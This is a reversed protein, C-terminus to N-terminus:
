CREAIEYVLRAALKATRGDQDLLPNCEAIDVLVIPLNLAKAESILCKILELGVLPELGMVSPASVGPAAGANFVDLCITLYLYDLQSLYQQLEARIADLDSLKCEHDLRWQVGQSKAFDFLAETNASENVGICYYHFSKQHQACWEAIQRFPTGSSGQRAPNRLDLHADLNVIGIAANPKQAYVSQAIGQFSGWAIEHGGGLVIPQLQHQLLRNIQEALGTQAPELHEDNCSVDGADYATKNLHWAANALAKRIAEPGQKAGQRGKNRRVGEDCAFGLLAIAGRDANALDNPLAQIQQHWRWSIGEEEDDIRGQWLTMDAPKYHAHVPM